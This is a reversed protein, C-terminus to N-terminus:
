VKYGRRPALVSHGEDQDVERTYLCLWNHRGPVNGQYRCPVNVQSESPPLICECNRSKAHRHLEYGIMPIGMINCFIHATIPPLISGTRLFLFSAYFGFLSTYSLQFVACSLSRHVDFLALYTCTNFLASKAASWDGGKAYFTDIAHHVHALGFLLPSWFIMRINSAGSM